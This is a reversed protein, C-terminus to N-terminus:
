QKKTTSRSTSVQDTLATLATLVQDFRDELSSKKNSGAAVEALDRPGSVSRHAAKRKGGVIGRSRTVPLTSPSALTLNGMHYCELIFGSGFSWVFLVLVFYASRGSEAKIHVICCSSSNLDIIETRSRGLIM